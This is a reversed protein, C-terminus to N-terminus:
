ERPTEFGSDSELGAIFGALFGAESLAIDPEETLLEYLACRALAARVEQGLDPRPSAM